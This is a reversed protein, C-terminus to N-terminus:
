VPWGYWYIMGDIGYCANVEIVETDRGAFVQPWLHSRKQDFLRIPNYESHQPRWRGLRGMGMPGDELYGGTM